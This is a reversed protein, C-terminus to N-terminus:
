PSDIQETPVRLCLCGKGYLFHEETHRFVPTSTYIEKTYFFGRSTHWTISVKVRYELVKTASGGEHLLELTHRPFSAM